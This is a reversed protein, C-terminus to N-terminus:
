FYASSSATHTLSVTDGLSFNSSTRSQAGGTSTRPRSRLRTCRTRSSTRWYTPNTTSSARLAWGTSSSTTTRTSSTRAPTTRCSFSLFSISLADTRGTERNRIETAPSERRMKKGIQGIFILGSNLARMALMQQTIRYRFHVTEM